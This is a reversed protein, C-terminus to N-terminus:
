YNLVIVIFQVNKIYRNNSKTLKNSRYINKSKYEQM